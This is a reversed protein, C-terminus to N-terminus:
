RMSVSGSADLLMSPVRGGQTFELYGQFNDLAISNIKNILSQLTYNGRHITSMSLDLEKCLSPEEPSYRLFTVYEDHPVNVFSKTYSLDVLGVECDTTDVDEDLFSNCLSLTNGTSLQCPLTIYRDM